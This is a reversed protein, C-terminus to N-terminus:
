NRPRLASSLCVEASAPHLTNADGSDLPASPFWGHAKEGFISRSEPAMEEKALLAGQLDDAPYIKLSDM